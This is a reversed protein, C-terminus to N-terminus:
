DSRGKWEFPTIVHSPTMKRPAPTRALTGIGMNQNRRARKRESRL